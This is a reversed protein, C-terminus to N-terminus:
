LIRKHKKQIETIDTTVEGRGNRIKENPGQRKKVEHAQGITQKNKKGREFFWSKTKNIKKQKQFDRNQENGRQDKNTVEM